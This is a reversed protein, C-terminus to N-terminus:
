WDTSPTIAFQTPAQAAFHLGSGPLVASTAGPLASLTSLAPRTSATKLRSPSDKTVSVALFIDPLQGQYYYPSLLRCRQILGATDSILAGDAGRPGVFERTSLQAAELPDSRWASLKGSLVGV